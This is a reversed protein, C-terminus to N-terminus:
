HLQIISETSFDTLEFECSRNNKHLYRASEKCSEITKEAGWYYIARTEGKYKVALAWRVKSGDEARKM